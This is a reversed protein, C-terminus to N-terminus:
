ADYTIKSHGLGSAHPLTIDEVKDVLVEVSANDKKIFEPVIDSESLEINTAPEPKERVFNFWIILHEGKDDEEVSTACSYTYKELSDHTYEKLHIAAQTLITDSLAYQQALDMEGLTFAKFSMKYEAKKSAEVFDEVAKNVSSKIYELREDKKENKVKM